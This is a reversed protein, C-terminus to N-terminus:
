QSLKDTLMQKIENIRQKGAAIRDMDKYAAITHKVASKRSMDFKLLNVSIGGNSFHLANQWGSNSYKEFSLEHGYHLSRAVIYAHELNRHSFTPRITPPTKDDDGATLDLLEDSKEEAEAADPSGEVKDPM